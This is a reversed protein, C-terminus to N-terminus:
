KIGVGGAVLVLRDIKDVELRAPPWYFSGGPRVLLQTGLIDLTPQWLWKAPPNRSKQVALELYPHGHTPRAQFPTSTITFGGAQPLGPVFVDLWQGPNFKISRKPDVTSLRLLRISDNVERIHSLTVQEIGSERPEHATRQEHPVSDSITAMTRRRNLAIADKPLSYYKPRPLHCYLKISRASCSRITYATTM